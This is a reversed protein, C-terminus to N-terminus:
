TPSSYAAMFAVGVPCTCCTDEHKDCSTPVNQINQPSAFLQDKLTTLTAVYLLHYVDPVVYMTLSVTDCSGGEGAEDEELEM